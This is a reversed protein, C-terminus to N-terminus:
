PIRYVSMTGVQILAEVTRFSALKATSTPVFLIDDAKLPIDPKKAALIKKLDVPIEDRTSSGPIVRMIRANSAAAARDLGEALALIQLAGLSRNQGLIFGGPKKVAGIAYIIDAKPVSIVDEPEILINEAPNSGSMIEKVSVSAVSFGGSSDDKADPLPIRGWELKRTIKVVSGADDKLGGVLSLVEFLNKQGQLQHVGPNGVAGLVSIPQSHMEVVDVTVDPNVLYKSLRENISAELQESTLGRAQIRGILPLNITGRTDIRVPKNDIEEANPAHIVIQDNPGIIYTLRPAEVAGPAAQMFWLGVLVPLVTM